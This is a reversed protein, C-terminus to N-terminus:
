KVYQKVIEFVEDQTKGKLGLLENDTKLFRGEYAPDFVAQLIYPVFTEADFLGQALRADAKAVIDELKVYSPEWSKEPAAKKALELLQHQSIDVDKIYVPRNKTEDPHRLIGVVADAISALRTASFIHEGDNYIVPKYDSVKLIFDNQLGWDLFSNNYVFTYTIGSTKSKEVLYDEIEVKQQFVPLQRAKPQYLNCGFESPLFRKVGAAVAADIIKKQPLIQFTAIASVVVDQGKLAATLDEVSEYDVDVVHINSSFTATSGNRRLVTINFDGADQLKELIVSGMSGSAGVLAVNQLLSM